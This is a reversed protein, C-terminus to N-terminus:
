WEVMSRSGMPSGRVMAGRAPSDPRVADRAMPRVM